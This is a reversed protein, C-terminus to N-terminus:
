YNDQVEPPLWYGEFHMITANEVRTDPKTELYSSVNRFSKMLQYFTGSVVELIGRKVWESLETSVDRSEPAQRGFELAKAFDELHRITMSDPYEATERVIHYRDLGITFPNKLWLPIYVEDLWKFYRERVVVDAGPAGNAAAIGISPRSEM